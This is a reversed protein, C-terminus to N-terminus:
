SKAYDIYRRYENWIRIEKQAIPFENFLEKIFNSFQKIDFERNFTEDLLQKARTEDM